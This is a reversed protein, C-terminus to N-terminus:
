SGVEAQVASMQSEDSNTLEEAKAVEAGVRQCNQNPASRADEKSLFRPWNGTFSLGTWLKSPSKQQDTSLTAESGVIQQQEQSTSRSRLRKSLSM